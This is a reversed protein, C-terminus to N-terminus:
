NIPKAGMKLVIEDAELPCKVEGDNMHFVLVLTWDETSNSGVVRWKFSTLHSSGSSCLPLSHHTSFIYTCM